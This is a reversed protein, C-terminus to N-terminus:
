TRQFGSKVFVVKACGTSSLPKLRILSFLNQDSIRRIRRASRNRLNRVSNIKISFEVFTPHPPGSTPFAQRHRFRMASRGVCPRRRVFGGPKYNVSVSRNSWDCSFADAGILLLSEHEVPHDFHQVLVECAGGEHPRAVSRPLSEPAPTSHRM